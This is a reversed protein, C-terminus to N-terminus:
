ARPRRLESPPPPTLPLEEGNLRLTAEVPVEVRLSNAAHCTAEAREALARVREAPADSRIDLVYTLLEMAVGVDDRLGYKGEQPFTARLEVEAKEVAVDM